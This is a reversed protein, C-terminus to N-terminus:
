GPLGSPLGPVEEAVTDFFEGVLHSLQQPLTRGFANEPVPGTIGFYHEGAFSRFPVPVRAPADAADGSTPCSNGTWSSLSATAALTPNAGSM